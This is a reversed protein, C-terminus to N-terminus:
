LETIDVVDEVTDGINDVIKTFFDELAKRTIVKYDAEFVWEGEDIYNDYVTDINDIFLEDDEDDSNYLIAARIDPNEVKEFVRKLMYDRNFHTLWFMIPLDKIAHQTINYNYLLSSFILRNSTSVYDGNASDYKLQDKEFADELICALDFLTNLPKQCEERLDVRVKVHYKVDMNILPVFATQTKIYKEPLNREGVECEDCEQYDPVRAKYISLYPDEDYDAAFELVKYKREQTFPDCDVYESRCDTYVVETIKEAFTGLIKGPAELSDDDGLQMINVVIKAIGDKNMICDTLNMKDITNVLVVDLFEPNYFDPNNFDSDWEKYSALAELLEDQLQKDSVYKKIHKKKITNHMCILFHKLDLEGTIINIAQFFDENELFMYFDLCPGTHIKKYRVAKMLQYLQQLKNFAEVYKPKPKFYIEVHELEIPKSRGLVANIDLKLEHKFAKQAMDECPDYMAGCEECAETILCENM